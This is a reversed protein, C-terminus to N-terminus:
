FNPRLVYDSSAGAARYFIHGIKFEGAKIIIFPILYQVFDNIM